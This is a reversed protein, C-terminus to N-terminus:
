EAVLKQALSGERTLAFVLVNVGFQLAGRGENRMMTERAANVTGAAHAAQWRAELELGDAWLFTYDKQSYVGVLRGDLFIGEVYDPPVGANPVSRTRFVDWYGFPISSQSVNAHFLPHELDLRAIRWDRGERRGQSNFADRVLERLAGVDWLGPIAQDQFDQAITEAYLFGGGCLYRGLSAAESSTYTFDCWTTLFAIPVDQLRPDTLPM